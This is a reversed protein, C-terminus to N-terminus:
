KQLDEGYYVKRAREPFNTIVADVGYQRMQEIENESNVTWTHIKIGKEKCAEVFGPYKMNYVAPHLAEVHYAAAYSVVDVIGNSYLFGCEAEPRLAKVRIISEHNFSSYIVRDELGYREVLEIVASEIGPYFNIGTKLEINISLGTPKLLKFVDELTPIDCHPFEPHTKNYDYKRLEELTMASVFGTGDSTRDIREDHIVVLQRDKTFQVDLEVGDAKLEAALAFADLTNEPAHGSAGRHAWIQPPMQTKKSVKANNSTDEAVKGDVHRDIGAGFRIFDLSGSECDLILTDWLEQSVEGEVRVPCIAGEPKKDEFYEIKSCGVSVIPFSRAQYIFDAHTHGHLFGIIRNGHAKNWDDLLDCLSEGNRIEKAWYDLNSLPADHSCILIRKNEPVNELEEKLWDIEELPFGYRLQENNDYSHLMFLRLPFDDIDVKYWLKVGGGVDESKIIKELYMERQEEENLICPNKGFYNADHNGLVIYAPYGWGQIRDLVRHSYDRCIEKDLIGDTFDGLHIIGYPHVSKNVAEITAATMEWNGNLVYHTDSLLTFILKRSESAKELVKEITGSIEAQVDQRDLFQKVHRKRSEEEAAKWGKRGATGGPSYIELFDELNAYNNVNKLNKIAIKIYGEKDEPLNYDDFTTDTKVAEPSDYCEERSIWQEEKQYDYSYLYQGPRKLTYFVYSYVYGKRQPVIKSGKTVYILEDFLMLEDGTHTLSAIGRELKKYINKCLQKM